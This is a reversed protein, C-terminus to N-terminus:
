RILNELMARAAPGSPVRQNMAPHDPPLQALALLALLM